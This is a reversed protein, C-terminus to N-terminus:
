RAGARPARLADHEGSGHLGRPPERRSTALWTSARTAVRRPRSGRPCDVSYVRRDSLRIASPQPGVRLRQRTGVADPRVYLGLASWHGCIVTHDRSLRSPVDFWPTWEDYADGPEGKFSLVMAGSDDVVRLRTMANVVVRLRDFGELDDSWRRPEDGYMRALFARCSEGRLTAEVEGALSRARAVSWQPMLGAHVLAFGDEVHMLPRRRLWDLLEERDHAALVDDLTDRKRAGEVGHAVCLLHFDHQRVGHGGRRGAIERLAPLQLSQPGRNVLDGTFWLRDRRPISRSRTSSARLPEYCGQLDGIAYTALKSPRRSWYDVAASSTRTPFRRTEV